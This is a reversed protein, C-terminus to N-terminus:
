KEIIDDDEVEKNKNEDIGLADSVKHKVKRFYLGAVAGVTVVVAAGIQIIMTVVSADLYLFVPTM